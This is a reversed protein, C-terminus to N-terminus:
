DPQTGVHARKREEREIRQLEGSMAREDRWTRATQPIETGTLVFPNPFNSGIGRGTNFSGSFPMLVPLWAIQWRTGLTRFKVSGFHFEIPPETQSRAGASLIRVLAPRSYDPVEPDRTQAAAVPAVSLLLLPLLPIRM